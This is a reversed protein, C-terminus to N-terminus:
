YAVECGGNLCCSHRDLLMQRKRLKDARPTGQRHLVLHGLEHAADFRSREASKSTNLFIYPRDDRWLSFADIEDAVWWSKVGSDSIRLMLVPVVSDGFEVRGSEPARLRKLGAETFMKKAM